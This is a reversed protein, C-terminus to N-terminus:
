CQRIFPSTTPGRIREGAHDVLESRKLAGALVKWAEPTNLTALADIAALQMRHDGSSLREKLVFVDTIVSGTGNGDEEAQVLMREWEQPTKILPLNQILFFFKSSTPEDSNIPQWIELLDLTKRAIAKDGIRTYAHFVEEAADNRVGLRSGEHYSGCGVLGFTSRCFGTRKFVHTCPHGYIEEYLTPDVYGKPLPVGPPLDNTKIHPRLWQHHYYPIGFLEKEVREGSQLCLPCTIGIDIRKAGMTFLIFAILLTLVIWRKKPLKMQKLVVQRVNKDGEASALSNLTEPQM